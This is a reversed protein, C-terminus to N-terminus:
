PAIGQKIEYRVEVNPKLIDDFRHVEKGNIYYHEVIVTAVKGSPISNLYDILEDTTVGMKRNAGEGFGYIKDLGELGLRVDAPGGPLAYKIWCHADEWRENPHIYDGCNYKWRYKDWKKDKVIYKHPYGNGDFFYGDFAFAYYMAEGKLRNDMDFHWDMTSNFRLTQAMTAIDLKWTGKEKKFFHPTCKREKEFDNFAVAHINDVAYKVKKSDMCPTLFRVENDQNIKTVTHKAFFKKTADTYIDLNPNTNHSKLALLYKKLVDMPTDSSLAIVNKGKKESLSNKGINARTKAGAGISKSKMPPMFEKGKKADYARDSILETAMYIADAITNNRFYPVFGKREIYSVFADTYVPELAMSVELRVKDQLVNVVMLIAKGSHSRSNKQLKEFEKNAFLDIDGDDMTIITRFDIDFDNLLHQNFKKYQKIIKDNSIFIHADDIIINETSNNDWKTLDCGAFFLITLCIIIYRM